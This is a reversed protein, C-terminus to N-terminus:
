ASVAYPARCEVVHGQRPRFKQPSLRDKGSRLWQTTAAPAPSPQSPSARRIELKRPQNKGLWIKNQLCSPLGSPLSPCPVAPLSRLSQPLSHASDRPGKGRSQPLVGQAVRSSDSLNELRAKEAWGHFQPPQYNQSSSGKGWSSAILFTKLILM